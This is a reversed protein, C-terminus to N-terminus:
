VGSASEKQQKLEAAANLLRQNFDMLVVSANDSLARAAYLEPMNSAPVWGFRHKMLDKVTDPIDKYDHPRTISAKEAYEICKQSLFFSAASHRLVYGYFDYQEQKEFYPDDGIDLLGLAVLRKGLKNFMETITGRHQIPEGEDSLFLFGNSRNTLRKMLVADRDSEIYDNIARVTFPWLNIMTESASNIQTSDGLKLKPTKTTIRESRNARNDKIVLMEANPRFDALAINGLTGPRLGECALLVMARDRLLARSPKGAATQFLDHPRVFVAEIISLYKDTPLSKIALHHSQKTGRITRRLQEVVKDYEHKLQERITASRINPELFVKRYIDLYGAIHSLRKRSTNPEVAGPLESPAKGAKASTLFVVKKDGMAEVEPLPRYCLEALKKAEDYTLGRGELARFALEIQHATCFRYFIRLSQAVLERTHPNTFEDTLFKSFPYHISGNDHLLVYNMKAFVQRM